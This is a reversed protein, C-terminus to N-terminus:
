VSYMGGNIEISEGDIFGSGEGALFVVARAVDAAEGAKRAPLERAMQPMLQDPKSHRAHFDTNIVGPSVCNVRINKDALEKTWGRSLSLVAGKAAAYVAAGPGGGNRAALSSMNIISGGRTMMPVIAQSVLITSLFNVDMVQKVYAPTIEALSVRKVMDGANNFLIDVQPFFQQVQLAFSKVRIPDTADLACGDAKRGLKRIKAILEAGAKANSHWTFFVDAGAEALALVSAAGLGSAGGTVVANKGALSM